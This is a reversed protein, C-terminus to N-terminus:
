ARRGLVAPATELVLLSLVGCVAACGGSIWFPAGSGFVDAARGALTPALVGGILEGSALSIAVAKAAHRAPASETPIVAVYLPGAGGAFYGAVLAVTLLWTPGHVFLTALPAVVGFFCIAVLALRRGIRDSIAPVIMGGAAVSLSTAAVVFGMDTPKLGDIRVLYLPLFVSQVLLWASFLGSIAICLLINRSGLLSLVGTGGPIKAEPATRPPEPPSRMWLALAVAM